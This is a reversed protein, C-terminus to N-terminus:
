IIKCLKIEKITVTAKVSIIGKFFGFKKLNPIFLKFNRLIFVNIGSFSRKDWIFDDERVSPPIPPHDIM